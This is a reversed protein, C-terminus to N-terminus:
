FHRSTRMNLASILRCKKKGVCPVGCYAHRVEHRKLTSVGLDTFNEFQICAKLFNIHFNSTEKIFIIVQQINADNAYVLFNSPAVLIYEESTQARCQFFLFSFFVQKFNPYLEHAGM